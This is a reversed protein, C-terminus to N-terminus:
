LTSKAKCKIYRQLGLTFLIESLNTKRRLKNIEPKCKPRTDM